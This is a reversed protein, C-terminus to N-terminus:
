YINTGDAVGGIKKYEKKQYRPQSANPGPGKNAKREEKVKPDVQYRDPKENENSSIKEIPKILNHTNNTDSNPPVTNAEVRVTNKGGHVGHPTKGWVTKDLLTYVNHLWQGTKEDKTQDIKIMGAGALLTIKEQVTDRNIGLENAVQQQSPFSEQNKDSHCILTIYVALATTGIQTAMALIAENDVTFFGKRRQDRIKFTDM